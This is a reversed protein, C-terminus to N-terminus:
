RSGQIKGTETTYQLAQERVYCDLLTKLACSVSDYLVHVQTNESQM